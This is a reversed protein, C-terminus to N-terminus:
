PWSLVLPEGADESERRSAPRKPRPRLALCDGCTVRAWQKTRKLRARPMDHRWCVSHHGCNCTSHQKHVRMEKEGEM